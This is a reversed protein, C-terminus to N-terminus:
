TSATSMTSPPSTKLMPLVAPAPRPRFARNPRSGRTPPAILATMAMAIKRALRAPATTSRTTMTAPTTIITSVTITAIRDSGGTPSARLCVTSGSVTLKAVMVVMTPPVTPPYM